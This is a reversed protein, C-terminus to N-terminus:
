HGEHKQQIRKQLLNWSKLVQKRTVEPEWLTSLVVNAHEVQKSNSWQSQLRRLADETTVGDRETIRLVAEEEPIITVWVEHVLNQWKAELLVAADVVCVQKDEDRAQNIRKQVILAIEPWVIDTLAKLREQNGFVKRGLARRNITKDENLLDLLPFSM